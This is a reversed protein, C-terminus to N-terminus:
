PKCSFRMVREQTVLNEEKGVTDYGSECLKAAKSDCVQWDAFGSCNVEEIPRNNPKASSFGGCATLSMSIILAALHASYKM